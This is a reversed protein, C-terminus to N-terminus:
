DRPVTAEQRGGSNHLAQIENDSQEPSYDPNNDVEEITPTEYRGPEEIFDESMQINQTKQKKGAIARTPQNKAAGKDATKNSSKRKKKPKPAVTEHDELVKTAPLQTTQQQQGSTTATNDAPEPATVILERLLPHDESKRAM